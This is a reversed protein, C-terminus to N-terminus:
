EEEGKQNARCGLGALSHAGTGAPCVTQPNMTDMRTRRERPM